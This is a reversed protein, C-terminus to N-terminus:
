IFHNAFKFLKNQCRAFLNINNKKLFIWKHTLCDPFTMFVVELCEHNFASFKM